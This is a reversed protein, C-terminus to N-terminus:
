HHKRLRTIRDVLNHGLRAEHFSDRVQILIIIQPYRLVRVHLLLHLNYHPRQRLPWLAIDRVFLRLVVGLFLLLIVLLEILQRHQKLLMCLLGLFVNQLILLLYDIIRGQVKLFILIVVVYPVEPLDVCEVRDRESRFLVWVSDDVEHLVLEELLLPHELAYYARIQVFNSIILILPLRM